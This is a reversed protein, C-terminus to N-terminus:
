QLFSLLASLPTHTTFFRLIHTASVTDTEFSVGFRRLLWVALFLLLAGVALGIAAGGLANLGHIGPLRTVLDLARGM